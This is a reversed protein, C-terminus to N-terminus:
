ADPTMRLTEALGAITILRRVVDTPEHLELRVDRAAVLLVALGSSDMFDLQSVDLVIKSTEATVAPMLAARLVGETSVDIQGDVRFTAVGDQNSVQEVRARPSTDDDGTVEAM